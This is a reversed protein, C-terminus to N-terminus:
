EICTGQMVVHNTWSFFGLETLHRTTIGHIQGQPCQNKLQEYAENAYNTEQGFLIETRQSRAEIKKGQVPDFDSVHVQHTSSACSVMVFGLGALILYKM